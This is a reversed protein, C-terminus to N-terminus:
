FGLLKKLDDVKPDKKAKEILSKILREKEQNIKTQIEERPIAKTIKVPVPLTVSRKKTINMKLWAKGKVTVEQANLIDNLSMKLPVDFQMKTLGSSLPPVVSHQNHGIKMLFNEDLFCDFSMSDLIVEKDNPNKIEVIADMQLKDFKLSFGGKRVQDLLLLLDAITVKETNIKKSSNNFSIIPAFDLTKVHVEKLEYQCKGLLERSKIERRLSSCSTILLVLFLAATNRLSSNMTIVGDTQPKLTNFIDCSYLKM